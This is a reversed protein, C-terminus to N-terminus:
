AQKLKVINVNLASHQTVIIVSGPGEEDTLRDNDLPWVLVRWVVWWVTGDRRDEVLGEGDGAGRCRREM